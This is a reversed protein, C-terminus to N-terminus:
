RADEGGAAPPAGTSTPWCASSRRPPRTTARAAPRGGQASIGIELHPGTSVGVIGCGVEAIPQGGNVHAGVPVLAPAAHGYYIFRGGLPGSDVRLVPAAPGFGGVGEQVITGSTMAVEVARAGCAGGATAIDVGQDLSWQSPGVAVALPQIPFAFGGGAAIARDISQVVALEQRVEADSPARANPDGLPAGGGGAVGPAPEVLQPHRSPLGSSDASRQAVGSAPPSHSGRSTPPWGVVAVMVAGAALAAAVALSLTRAVSLPITRPPGSLM